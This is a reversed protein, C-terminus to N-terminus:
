WNDIVEELHNILTEETIEPDFFIGQYIDNFGKFSNTEGSSATALRISPPALSGYSSVPKVQFNSKSSNLSPDLLAFHSSTEQDDETFFFPSAGYERQYDDCMVHTQPHMLRAEQRFSSAKTVQMLLELPPDYLKQPNEGGTHVIFMTGKSMALQHHLVLIYQIWYYIRNENKKNMMYCRNM